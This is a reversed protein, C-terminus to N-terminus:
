PIPPVPTIALATPTTESNPWTRDEKRANARYASFSSLAGSLSVVQFLISITIQQESLFFGPTPPPPWVFLRLAVLICKEVVFLKLFYFCLEHGLLHSGVRVNRKQCKDIYSKQKNTQKVKPKTDARYSSPCFM